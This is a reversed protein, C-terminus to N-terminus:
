KGNLSEEMKILDEHIDFNCNKNQIFIALDFLAAPTNPVAKLKQPGNSGAASEVTQWIVEQEQSGIGLKLAEESYIERPLILSVFPLSKDYTYAHIYAGVILIEFWRFFSNETEKLTLAQYDKGLVYMNNAIKEAFDSNDKIIDIVINKEQENFFALNPKLSNFIVSLVFKRYNNNLFLHYKGTNNVTSEVFAIVEKESVEMLASM